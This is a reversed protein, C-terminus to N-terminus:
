VEDPPVGLDLQRKNRIAQVQEQEREKKNLYSGLASFLFMGAPIAFWGRHEVVGLRISMALVAVAVALQLLVDGFRYRCNM